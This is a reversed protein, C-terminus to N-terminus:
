EAISSEFNWKCAFRRDEVRGYVGNPVSQREVFFDSYFGITQLGRQFATVLDRSRLSSASGLLGIVPMAPQQARAALPWAMAGGLLTIFDRRKLLPLSTRKMARGGGLDTRAAKGCVAGAEPRFGACFRSHAIAAVRGRM